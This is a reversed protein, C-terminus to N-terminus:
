DNTDGGDFPERGLALGANNILVDIAQLDAPLSSVSEFVADRNRIDVPLLYCSTSHAGELKEKLSQLRGERRGNLILRYGNKAFINACAEGFGSTAGTILVVGGTGRFLLSADNREEKNKIM